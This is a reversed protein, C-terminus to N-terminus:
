TLLIRIRIRRIDVRIRIRPFRRIDVRIRLVPLFVDKTCGKKEPVDIFLENLKKLRVKRRMYKYTLWSECKAYM